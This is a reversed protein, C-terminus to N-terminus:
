SINVFTDAKLFMNNM